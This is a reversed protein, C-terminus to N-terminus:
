VNDRHIYPSPIYLIKKTEFFPESFIENLKIIDFDKINILERKLDGGKLCIIGNEIKNFNEISLKNKCISLINETSSVARNLIFDYKDLIDKADCAEIKVNNLDLKKIIDVLVDMKKKKRDVLHFDAEPFIIALPIGPLGGGTGIDLIKTKPKFFILKSISLSHIVHNIQFNEVDKRSVLNIKKNWERILKEFTSLKMIQSDSIQPFYKKILTM